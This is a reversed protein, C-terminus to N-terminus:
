SIPLNKSIKGSFYFKELKFRRCTGIYSRFLLFTRDFNQM